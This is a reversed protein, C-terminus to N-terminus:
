KWLSIQSLLKSAIALTNLFYCHCDNKAIQMSISQRKNGLTDFSFLAIYNVHEVPFIERFLNKRLGQTKYKTKM